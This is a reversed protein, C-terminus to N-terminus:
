QNPEIPGSASQTVAIEMGPVISQSIGSVTVSILQGNVAVTVVGDYVTGQAKIFLFDRAAQAGRDPSAPAATAARVGAQAAALALNKAYSSIGFQVGGFILLLVAPMVLIWGLSTGGSGRQPDWRVLGM